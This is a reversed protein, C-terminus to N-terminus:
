FTQGLGITSRGGREGIAYDIRIVGLGLSPFVIRLGVGIDKFIRVPQGSFWAGGADTFVAGNLLKLKAIPFRYEANFVVFRSGIFSNEVYGRLTDAGGVFFIETVPLRGNAIGGWGRV